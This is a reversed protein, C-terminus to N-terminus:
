CCGRERLLLRAVDGPLRCHERGELGDPRHCCWGARGNWAPGGAPMRRWSHDTIAAVRVHWTVGRTAVLSGPLRRVAWSPWSRLAPTLSLHGSLKPRVKCALPGGAFAPYRTCCPLVAAANGVSRSAAVMVSETVQAISQCHGRRLYNALLPDPIRTEKAGGGPWIGPGLDGAPGNTGHAAQARTAPPRM